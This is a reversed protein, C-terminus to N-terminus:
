VSSPDTGDDISTTPAPAPTATPAEALDTFDLEDVESVFTQQAAALSEERERQQRNLQADSENADANAQAVSRKACDLVHKVSVTGAASAWLETQDANGSITVDKFQHGARQLLLVWFNSPAESLEFKYLRNDQPGADVLEKKNMLDTIKIDYAVQEELANTESLM